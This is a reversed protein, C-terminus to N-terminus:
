FIKPVGKSVGQAGVLGPGSVLVMLVGVEKRGESGALRRSDTRQMFEWGKQLRTGWAHNPTANEVVASMCGYM